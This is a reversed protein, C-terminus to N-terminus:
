QAAAKNLIEKLTEVSKKPMDIRVGKNCNRVTMSGDSMQNVFWDDGIDHTKITQIDTM